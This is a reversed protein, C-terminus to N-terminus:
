TVNVSCTLDFQISRTQDLHNTYVRQLDFGRPTNLEQSELLLQLM